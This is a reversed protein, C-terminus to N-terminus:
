SPWNHYKRIQGDPDRTEIAHIGSASQSADDALRIFQVTMEWGRKPRGIRNYQDWTLNLRTNDSLLIPIPNRTPEGNANVEGLSRVTGKRVALGPMLVQTPLTLGRGELNDPPENSTIFAATAGDNHTGVTNQEELGIFERFNM